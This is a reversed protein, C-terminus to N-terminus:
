YPLVPKAHLRFIDHQQKRTQIALPASITPASSSRCGSVSDAALRLEATSTASSWWIHGFTGWLRENTMLTHYSILISIYLPMWHFQKARLLYQLLVLLNKMKTLRDYVSKGEFLM